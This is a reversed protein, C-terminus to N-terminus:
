IGLEMLRGMNLKYRELRRRQKNLNQFRFPLYKELEVLYRRSYYQANRGAADVLILSIGRSFLEKVTFVDPGEFSDMCTLVNAAFHFTRNTIEDLPWYRATMSFITNLGAKLDRRVDEQDDMFQTFVGYGFMFERQAATLNGAVLYGDALVATGGKEISIGLVDVEFPSADPHILSLSRTQAEQIASLSDYLLPFNKRSFQGEVIEILSWIARESSNTPSVAEGALRQSFRQNFESKSRPSILPNDLYNDTYPYLMSYAFVAPTLEVPLGLLLQMFNMSWVNRSAQYIDESDIEPNFARAKKAFEASIEALRHKRIVDIHRDELGLEARAFNEGLAVLRDRTANREESLRYEKRLSTLLEDVLRDLRAGKEVQEKKTYAPSLLPFGANSGWWLSTFYRTLEQVTVPISITREQNETISNELM